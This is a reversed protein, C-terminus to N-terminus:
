TLRIDRIRSRIPPKFRARCRRFGETGLAKRITEESVGLRLHTGIEKYTMRRGHRSGCVHLILRNRIEKTIVETPSEHRRPAPNSERLVDEVQYRFLWLRESIERPEMNTLRLKLVELRQGCSLVRPQLMPTAFPTAELNFAPVKSGPSSECYAQAGQSLIAGEFERRLRLAVNIPPELTRLKHTPYAPVIIPTPRYADNLATTQSRETVRELPPLQWLSRTFLPSSSSFSATWIQSM